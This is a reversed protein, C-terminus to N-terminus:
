KKRRIQKEKSSINSNSQQIGQSPYTEEVVKVELLPKRERKRLDKDGLVEVEVQGEEEKVSKEMNSESNEGERAKTAMRKLESCFETIQNLIDRGAFLNRASVTSKMRSLVDKSEEVGEKENKEVIKQSSSKMLNKALPSSYLNPNKNESDENFKSNWFQAVGRRKM